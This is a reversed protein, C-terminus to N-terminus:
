PDSFRNSSPATTAHRAQLAVIQRCESLLEALSPFNFDRELVTPFPGILEYAHDLLHWVEDSVPHGHSDLKLGDGVDTHGAV